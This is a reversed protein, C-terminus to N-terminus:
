IGTYSCLQPIVTTKAARRISNAHGKKPFDKSNDRKMEREMEKRRKRIKEKGGWEREKYKEKKNRRKKGNSGKGGEKFLM